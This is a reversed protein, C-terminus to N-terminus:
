PRAKHGNPRSRRKLLALVIRAIWNRELHQLAEIRGQLGRDRFAADTWYPAPIALTDEAWQRVRHGDPLRRAFALERRM